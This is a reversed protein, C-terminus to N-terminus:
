PEALKIKVTTGPKLEESGRVLLTDGENLDGFIEIGSGTDIGDKVDVWEIKEQNIRTVFKRELTTVVAPYSVVFSADSRKLKLIAMGYMGPKLIGARNDYEYEWLETRTDRDISGSKRTLVAQFSRGAVAETTFTLINQVPISNVYSEPVHIRIRLKDPREVTMLNMQGSMGVFDGPDVCRKTVIGDFPARISLYAQLQNYASATAHASNLSASDALMRNRTDVLETEAIVGKEMSASRIRQYKDDSAQYKAEAEYYRARAEAYRAAIEPADLVMLIEGQNVQDGIDVLIKEVYGEVKANLEVQEYPLLEAPLTMTKTVEHKSLLFANKIDEVQREGDKEGSCSLILASLLSIILSHKM